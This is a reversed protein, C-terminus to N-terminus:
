FNFSTASVSIGLNAPQTNMKNRKQRPHLTTKSLNTKNDTLTKVIDATIWGTPNNANVPHAAFGQKAKSCQQARQHCRDTGKSHQKPQAAQVIGNHIDAWENAKTPALHTKHINGRRFPMPMSSANRILAAQCRVLGSSRVARRIASANASAATAIEM